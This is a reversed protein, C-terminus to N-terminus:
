DQKERAAVLKRHVEDMGFFVYAMGEAMWNPMLSVSWVLPALGGLWYWDPTRGVWGGLWGEGKLAQAVLKQAYEETPMTDTKQSFNLRAQFKDEAPLYISDPPLRRETHSTFNSKVTGTMAVMVRVDFPKLEMRLARLYVNMAGKTSSYISAFLYPIIASLSSVYVILGRAPILLSIFAKCMAMPGFVNAEYTERIDDLEADLAPITHSRGSRLPSLFFLM